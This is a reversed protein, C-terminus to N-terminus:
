IVKLFGKYKEFKRDLYINSNDYFLKGINVFNLNGGIILQTVQQNGRNRKKIYGINKGTEQSIWNKIEILIDEHYSSFGFEHQNKQRKVKHETIWGDADFLGRYFHRLLEDKIKPTTIRLYTKRPVIGYSALSECMIKSGIGIISCNKATDKILYDSELFDRFKVLHNYDVRSLELRLSTGTSAISGDGMIFGLWYAKEENDICDFVHQNMNYKRSKPTFVGRRILLGRVSNYNLNFIESLEQVSVNEQYLRVLEVKQSDTLSNM